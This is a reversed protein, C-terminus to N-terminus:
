SKPVFLNCLAVFSINNVKYSYTLKKNALNSYKGKADYCNQKSKIILM